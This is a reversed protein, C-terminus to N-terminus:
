LLRYVTLAVRPETPPNPCALWLGGLLPGYSGNRGGQLSNQEWHPSRLSNSPQPAATMSRGGARAAM